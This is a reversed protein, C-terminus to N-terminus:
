VKAKIIARQKTLTEKMLGDIYESLEPDDLALTPIKFVTTNKKMFSWLNEPLETVYGTLNPSLLCSRLRDKMI